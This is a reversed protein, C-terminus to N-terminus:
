SFYAYSHVAEKELKNENKKGKTFFPINKKNQEPGLPNVWWRGRLPEVVM